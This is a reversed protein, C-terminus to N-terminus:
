RVIYIQHQLVDVDRVCPRLGCEVPDQLHTIM